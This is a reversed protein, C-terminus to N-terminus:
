VVVPKDVRMCRVSSCQLLRMKPANRMARNAQIGVGQGAEPVPAASATTLLKSLSGCAM